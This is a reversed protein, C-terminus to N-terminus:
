LATHFFLSIFVDESFILRVMVVTNILVGPGESFDIGHWNGLMLLEAAVWVKFLCGRYKNDPLSLLLRYKVERSNWKDCPSIFVIATNCYITVDVSIRVSPGCCQHAARLHSVGRVRDMSNYQLSFMGSRIPNHVSQLQLSYSSSWSQSICWLTKVKM